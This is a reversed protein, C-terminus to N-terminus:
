CYSVPTQNKFRNVRSKHSVGVETPSEFRDYKLRYNVFCTQKM